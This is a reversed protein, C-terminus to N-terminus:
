MRVCFLSLLLEIRTKECGILRGHNVYARYIAHRNAEGNRGNKSVLMLFQILNYMDHM